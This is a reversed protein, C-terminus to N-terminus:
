PRRMKALANTLDMSKRRLAGRENKTSGGHEKITDEKIEFLKVAIIFEEAIIKARTISGSQM